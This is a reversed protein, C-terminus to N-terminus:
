DLNLCWFIELYGILLENCFEVVDEGGVFVVDSPCVEEGMLNVEFIFVLCGNEFFLEWDGPCM